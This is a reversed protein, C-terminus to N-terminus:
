CCSGSQCASIIRNAHAFFRNCSTSDPSDECRLAQDYACKLDPTLRSACATDSVRSLHDTLLTLTSKMEDSSTRDAIERLSDVCSCVNVKPDM